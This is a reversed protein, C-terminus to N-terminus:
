KTLMYVRKEENDIVKDAYMAPCGTTKEIYQEIIEKMVEDDKKVIFHYPVVNIGPKVNINSLDVSVVEPGNQDLSYSAPEMNNPNVPQNQNEAETSTPLPMTLESQQEPTSQKAGTENGNEAKNKSKSFIKKIRKGLGLKKDKTKKEKKKKEKKPKKETPHNKKYEKYKKITDRVNALLIVGACLSMSVLIGAAFPAATFCMISSGIAALFEAGCVGSIIVDKRVQKKTIEGNARMEAEKQKAIAKDERRQIARLNRKNRWTGWKGLEPKINMDYEQNHNEKEM